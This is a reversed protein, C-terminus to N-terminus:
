HIVKALTTITTQKYANLQTTLERKLEGSGPVRVVGPNMSAGAACGGALERGRREESSPVRVAM